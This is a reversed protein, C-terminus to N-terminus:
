QKSRSREEAVRQVKRINMKDLKKWGKNVLDMMCPRLELLGKGNAVVDITDIEDNDDVMKDNDKANDNFIYDDFNPVLTEPKYEMVKDIVQDMSDPLMTDDNMLLRECDRSHYIILYIHNAGNLLIGALDEHQIFTM